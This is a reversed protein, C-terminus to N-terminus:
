SRAFPLHQNLEDINDQEVINVSGIFRQFVAKLDPQYFRHLSLSPIAAFGRFLKHESGAGPDFTEINNRIAWDIPSYFCLNFHLDKIQRTSGWYRGMLQGGKHVLMSLALPMEAHQNHAAVILLRHRYARFIREFFARNLFKAAWPGFQANTIEYCRYMLGALDVPIQDGTLTQIAIGEGAMRRRERRINRRQTSRFPKLYDEFSSYGPNRWLYSQHRWALYGSKLAAAGWEPDVFNFQCATIGLRTCIADIATFMVKQVAERDVDDALLFRYGIVPTAPSMGVLKPYYPTDMDSALRVWLHDFVFEGASHTKLYLPAAAILDEGQWVTLHLPHWGNPPAISGSAELAHLWPWELLPTDLPLALRDWQGQDVEGISKIWRINWTPHHPM